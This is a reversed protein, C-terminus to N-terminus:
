SESGLIMTNVEEVLSVISTRSVFVTSEGMLQTLCSSSDYQYFVLEVEPYNENERCFVFRIEERREPEKGTAYGTSALNGIRTLVTDLEVEVGNLYYVTNEGTNGDEDTVTEVSVTVHYTEGDLVIDVATLEDFDMELVEDPLLESQTTYLMADSVAADILYVMSSGSIRAYCQNSGNYDGIELAFSAPTQTTRYVTNGEEDTGDTAIKETIVYGVTVVATPTDLGCGALAEEDANYNACSDWRLDTINAMLAETLETDLVADGAFWVYADSYALGSDAQYRINLEQTQALVRFATIDSMEPIEETQVLDYLGYTFDDLISEKVLYVNGDGVSAYISGGMSTENGLLIQRSAGDATVTVTCVPEALGYQSLDEVKELTKSSVIESLTDLMNELPEADVPFVADDDYRWVGDNRSFSLTEDEYTWALGTVADTSVSFMVSSTDAEPEGDSNFNLRSVVVAAVILVALSLLLCLIKQNRKM